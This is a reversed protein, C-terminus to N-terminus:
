CHYLCTHMMIFYMLLRHPPVTLVMIYTLFDLGLLGLWMGLIVCDHSVSPLRLDLGMHSLAMVGLEEVVSPGNAWRAQIHRWVGITMSRSNARGLVKFAADERLLLQRIYFFIAMGPNHLINLFFAELSINM